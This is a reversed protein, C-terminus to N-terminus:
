KGGLSKLIFKSHTNTPNRHTAIKQCLSLSFVDVLIDVHLADLENRHEVFIWWGINVKQHNILSLVISGAAHCMQVIDDFRLVNQPHGCCRESRISHLQAEIFDDLVSPNVLQNLVTIKSLVM